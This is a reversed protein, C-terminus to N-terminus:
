PSRRSRSVPARSAPKRSSRTPTSAKVTKTDSGRPTKARAVRLQKIEDYSELLCCEYFEPDPMKKLDAIVTICARGCYSQVTHFLGIGDMLMGVAHMEIVKAGVMYLPAKPGPINTILTNAPSKELLGFGAAARIARSTLGAPFSQAVDSLVTAGIAHQYAKAYVASSHIAQLRERPDAIDSHMNLTTLAVVNGSAHRESETRVNIPMVTSMSEAPLERKAALYRRMAGAILCVVADNITVGEVTHRASRLVELDVNLLLVARHTSVSGGFRTDPVLRKEDPHDRTVQKARRAAPLVMSLVKVLRQPKGLVHLYARGLMRVSSPISAVGDNHPAVPEDGHVSQDHIARLMAHGSEGDVAAHHVRLLLGFSGKPVGEVNNLGEIVYADWPPRNMNLPAAMLRALLICLQRRDAPEPLAIHNIHQEVNFDPDDAWYPEDLDLPVRVLKRRLVPAARVRSEFMSLIDKFRVKGKPATSADYIFFPGAHMPTRPNDTYILLSDFASLQQYM